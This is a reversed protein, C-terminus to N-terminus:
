ASSAFFLHAFHAVSRFFLIMFCNSSIFSGAFISSNSHDNEHSIRHTNFYQNLLM